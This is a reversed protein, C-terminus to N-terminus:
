HGFRDGYEISDLFAQVMQADVFNGNFQNLKDLWFFWGGFNTDPADDPNRRLYGYYQLLVFARNTEAQRLTEDEAVARLVQARSMTGGALANVLTDRESQSLAGGANANLTDVFQAATLTGPFATLFRQRLVFEAAYANKNAELREPWGPTGVVVNQGIRQSDALFEHIRIIPVTGPVGPSTADGYAAKFMRYALLGTEQNEISLFFAASVNIRCAVPNPDGCGTTQGVWFNLGGLDPERSLFDLYHQRVFFRADFSGGKVPSPGGVADDSVITLVASSQAGLTMGVPNSLTLNVTENPEAYRDDTILVTFTKTAEGAAFRLTGLTQTYDRRRDATGDSTAYDVSAAGTTDTRAVTVVRFGSGETGLGDAGITENVSYTAASFGVTGATTSTGRFHESTFNQNLNFRGRSTPNFVFGAKTPVLEYNGGAALGTFSYDGAADTQRTALLTGTNIDNLSVTVGSIGTGTGLGTDDIRGGLTFTTQAQGVRAPWASGFLLLLAAAALARAFAFRRTRFEIGIM